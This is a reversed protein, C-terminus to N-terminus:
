QGAARNDIAFGDADACRSTRRNDARCSAPANGPAFDIANADTRRSTRRCDHHWAAYGAGTGDRACGIGAGCSGTGVCACTAGRAAM